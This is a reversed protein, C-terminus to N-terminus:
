RGQRVAQRVMEMRRAYEKPNTYILSDDLQEKMMADFSKGQGQSDPPPTGPVDAGLARLKKESDKRATEIAEEKAKAVQEQTTRLLETQQTKFEELAKSTEAKIAAMADQTRADNKQMIIRSVSATFRGLAEVQNNSGDGWDINPDDPNVGSNPFYHNVFRAKVDEQSEYSPSAATQATQEVATEAARQAYAQEQLKLKLERQRFQLEKREDEDLVRSAIGSLMEKVEALEARDSELAQLRKRDEAAQQLTRTTQNQLGKYMADYRLAKAESEKVKAEAAEKATKMANFDALQKQLEEIQAAINVTEQEVPESVQEVPEGSPTAPPTADTAAASSKGAM